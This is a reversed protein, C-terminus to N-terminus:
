FTAESKTVEVHTTNYRNLIYRRIKREKKLLYATVMIFFSHKSKPKKCNSKIQKKKKEGKKGIFCKPRRKNNEPIIM